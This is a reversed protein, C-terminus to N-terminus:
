RKHSRRDSLADHLPTRGVNKRQHILIPHQKCICNIKEVIVDNDNSKYRTTYHLITSDIKDLVLASEPHNKFLYDLTGEPRCMVAHFIYPWGFRSIVKLIDKNAKLFLSILSIFHNSKPLICMYHIIGGENECKAAEPDAKLLMEILIMACSYTTRSVINLFRGILCCLIANEIVAASKDVEILCHVMDMQAPFSSRRCVAGLRTHFLNGGLCFCSLVIM